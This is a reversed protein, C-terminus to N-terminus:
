AVQPGSAEPRIDGMIGFAIKAKLFLPVGALREVTIPILTTQAEDEYFDWTKILTCLMENLSTLAGQMDITVSDLAGFQALTEDTVRNPYYTVNLTEGEIGISVTATDAVIQSLSVPM